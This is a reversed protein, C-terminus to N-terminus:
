FNKKMVLLMKHKKMKLTLSKLILIFNRMKMNELKMILLRIEFPADVLKLILFSSAILAGYTDAYRSDAGKDLLSIRVKIILEEFLKFNNVMTMILKKGLEEQFNIDLLDVNRKTEDRVDLEIKLFRSNDAGNLKPPVIGSLLGAMRLEFTNGKQDSTGLAKKIGSSAARLMALISALKVGDAESEDLLIAGSSNGMAQRIGPESSSGEFLLALQGLLNKIFEQLTSKGTGRRGTLSEHTRWKLVGAFPACLIWGLQLRIDQVGRKFKWTELIAVLREIDKKSVQLNEKEIFLNKENNFIFKGRIRKGNFDTATGWINETNVILNGKSLPNAFIGYGKINEINYNGERICAEVVDNQLATMDYGKFHGKDDTISYKQNLFSKGFINIINAKTFDKSSLIILSQRYNSFVYNDTGKIGLAQYGNELQGFVFNPKTETFTKSVTNKEISKNKQALM